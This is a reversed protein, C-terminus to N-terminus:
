LNVVMPCMCIWRYPERDTKFTFLLYTLVTEHV